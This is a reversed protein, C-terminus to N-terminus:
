QAHKPEKNNIKRMIEDFREFTLSGLGYDLTDIIEDVDHDSYRNEGYYIKLMKDLLHSEGQAKNKLKLVKIFQKKVTSEKINPM